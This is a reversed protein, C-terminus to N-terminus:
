RYSGMRFKAYMRCIYASVSAPGGAVQHDHRVGRLHNQYVWPRLEPTSGCKGILLVPRAQKSVYPGLVLADPFSEASAIMARTRETATYRRQLVQWNTEYRNAGAIRSYTLGQLAVDPLATTGGVVTLTRPSETLYTRAGASIGRPDALVIAEGRSAASAAISLADPWTTGSAVVVSDVQEGLRRAVNLSVAYRDPGDIREVSDSAIGAAAAAAVAVTETVARPGGVIVISNPSLRKLEAAIDRNLSGSPTILIPADLQAALPAAVLSDAFEEGSALIVSDSGGAWGAKSVAVATQYRNDGWIRPFEQSVADAAFRAVGDAIGAALKQQYAASKLLALEGSNSMFGCEVLAAPQDTWRNVYFNTQHAGRNPAGTRSAMGDLLSRAFGSGLPDNPASYVEIGRATTGGANCHISIFLEAGSTRARDCRAQLEVRRRDVSESVPWVQYRYEKASEVWKWSKRDGGKHVASDDNRTLVVEVGRSRLETAVRRSIQLNLDSERVGGYVAGPDGGGHGPDIVVRLRSPAVPSAVATSPVVLTAMLALALCARALRALGTRRILQM